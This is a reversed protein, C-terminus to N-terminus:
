YSTYVVVYQAMMIIELQKPKNHFSSCTIYINETKYNSFMNDLASNMKNVCKIFLTPIVAYTYCISLLKRIVIIIIIVFCLKHM